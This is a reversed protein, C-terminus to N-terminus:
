NESTQSQNAKSHIEKSNIRNPPNVASRLGTHRGFSFFTEPKTEGGGGGARDEKDEREPVEIVYINFRQSYNWLDRFSNM